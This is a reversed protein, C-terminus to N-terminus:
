YRNCRVLGPPPEAVRQPKETRHIASNGRWCRPPCLHCFGTSTLTFERGPEAMPRHSIGNLHQWPLPVRRGSRAWARREVCERRRYKALEGPFASIGAACKPCCMHQRLPLPLSHGTDTLRTLFLPPTPPRLGTLQWGANGTNKSEQSLYKCYEGMSDQLNESTLVHLGTVSCKM